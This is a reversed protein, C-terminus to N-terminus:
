RGRAVDKKGARREDREDDADARTRIADDEWLDWVEDATLRLGTGRRAARAIRQHPTM